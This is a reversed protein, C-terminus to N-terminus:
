EGVEDFLARLPQTLCGEFAEEIRAHATELWDVIAGLEITEPHNLFYDLDLIFASTGPDDTESNGLQMRMADRYDDYSFHVVVGFMRLDQPLNNGVHPYFDFYHELEIGDGPLQIRNIYRLGIRRFGNPNAVERYKGLADVIMPRFRPWGPYVPLHHVSLQHMGVQILSSGSESLLRLREVPAVRHSIEGPRETISQEFTLVPERKPFQEQLREYLRGPESGDWPEGPEFRFDCIAESLPANRYQRPM